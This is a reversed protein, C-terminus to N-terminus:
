NEKAKKDDKFLKKLYLFRNKVRKMDNYNCYLKGISPLNFNTRLQNFEEESIDEKLPFCKITHRIFKWYSRYALSVTERPINMDRSVKDIIDKYTM